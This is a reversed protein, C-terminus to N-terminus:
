LAEVFVTITGELNMCYGNGKWDTMTKPYGKALCKSENVMSHPMWWVVVFLISGVLIAGLLGLFWFLVYEWWETRM